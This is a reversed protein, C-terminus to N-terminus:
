DVPPLSTNVSWSISSDTDTETECPKASRSKRTKLYRIKTLEDQAETEIADWHVLVSARTLAKRYCDPANPCSESRSLHEVRLIVEEKEQEQIQTSSLTKNRERRRERSREMSESELKMVFRNLSKMASERRSELKDYGSADHEVIDAGLHEEEESVRLGITKDLAFLIVFSLLASWSTIALIAIIQVGLLRGNGGKFVGSLSAFGELNDLETFFGVSLLGWMGSLAHASICGTPDDIKFKELM